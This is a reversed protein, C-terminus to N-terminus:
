ARDYDPHTLRLTAKDRRSVKISISTHPTQGTTIRKIKSSGFYIQDQPNFIGFSMDVFMQRLYYEMLWVRESENLVNMGRLGRVMNKGKKFIILTFGIESQSNITVRFQYKTSLSFEKSHNEDLSLEGRIIDIVRERIHYLALNLGERREIKDTTFKDVIYKSEVLDLPHLHKTIRYRNILDVSPRGMQTMGNYHLFFLESKTFQARMIKAYRKKENEPIPSTHILDFIRYVTRFYVSLQATYKAYLDEFSLIAASRMRSISRSYRANEWMREMLVSFFEKGSKTETYGFPSSGGTTSLANQSSIVEIKMEAVQSHYLSLLSFFMDNFRQIEAQREQRVQISQQLLAAKDSLEKELNNTQISLKTQLNNTKYTLRQQERMTWWMLIITFTALMPGFMGGIFDGLNGWVENDVVYDNWYLGVDRGLFFFLGIFVTLITIGITFYLIILGINANIWAITRKSFLM